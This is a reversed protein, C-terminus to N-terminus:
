DARDVRHKVHRAAVAAAPTKYPNLECFGRNGSIVNPTCEDVTRYHCDWVVEGAGVDVVACWPADGSLQAAGPSANLLLAAALAAAAIAFRPM